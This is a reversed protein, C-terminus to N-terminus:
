FFYVSGYIVIGLLYMLLKVTKKSTFNLIINRVPLLLIVIVILWPSISTFILCGTILPFLVILGHILWKQKVVEILDIPLYFGTIITTYESKNLKTLINEILFLNVYMLITHVLKMEIYYYSVFGIIFTFISINAISKIHYLVRTVEKSLFFLESYNKEMLRKKSVKNDKLLEDQAMSVKSTDQNVLGEFMTSMVRYYPYLYDYKLSKIQILHGIMTIVLIMLPLIHVTQISFSILLLVIIFLGYVKSTSLQFKIFGIYNSLSNTVLAIFLMPTIPVEFLIFISTIFITSAFVKFFIIVKLETLSCLKMEFIQFNINLLPNNQIVKAFSYLILVIPFWKIVIEEYTLFTEVTVPIFFLLLFLSTIATLKNKRILRVYQRVKNLTLFYYLNIRM